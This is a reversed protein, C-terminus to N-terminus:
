SISNSSHVMWFFTCFFCTYYYSFMPIKSIVLCCKTSWTLTMLLLSHNNFTSISSILPFISVSFLLSISMSWGTLSVSTSLTISILWHSICINIFHNFDVLSLYLHHYLSQFWGTLSVSPSLTISILWHSICINSSFYISNNISPNFFIVKIFIFFISLLVTSFIFSGIFKSITLRLFTSLFFTFSSIYATFWTKLQIWVSDIVSVFKKSKTPSFITASNTSFLLLLCSFLLLIGHHFHRM